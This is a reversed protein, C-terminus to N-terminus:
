SDTSNSNSWCKLLKETKSRGGESIIKSQLAKGLQPLSSVSLFEGGGSHLVCTKQM